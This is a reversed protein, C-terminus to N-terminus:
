KAEGAIRIRPDLWGYLLDAVFNSLVVAITTVLFVGQMVPYDRSYLAQSLLLGIGPYVFISEIIVSGGVVFGISLALRTVLPLSANRGVYATIIRGEPLGRAKAATVYDEGLTSITSSKMTLMWSGTRSLVYVFALLAYHQLVDVFFELTFGPQIGPSVAGRTMTVPVIKFVTSLLLILLIAILYSPLADMAAALNTLLHDLWSNRKYAVIMGLLMGLAFSILLATGISFITWPLRQVIMQAVPVNRSIYSKGLDGQLLNGLFEFYQEHLPSDLRLGLMSAAQTQADEYTLGKLLLDQIFIDVPNGPMLRIVFFILTTVLWITFLSKLISRVLFKLDEMPLRKLWASAARRSVVTTTM